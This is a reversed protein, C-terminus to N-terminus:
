PLLKERVILRDVSTLFFASAAFIALGLGLDLWIIERGLLSILFFEPLVRVVYIAPKPVDFSISYLVDKGNYGSGVNELKLM